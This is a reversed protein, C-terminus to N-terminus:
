ALAAIEADSLTGPVITIPIPFTASGRGALSSVLPGPGDPGVGAALVLVAVDEDAEILKVVEDARVGERVVLEPDVRAIQRAREAAKALMLDAEARAEQRMVAEVGLFGRFDADAIVALMVLGGGTREARRAAYGIARDVEPTDDVVVM